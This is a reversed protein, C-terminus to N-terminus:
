RAMDLAVFGREDIDSLRFGSAKVYLVGSEKLSTNGGGALFYEPNSGYFNSLGVLESLM